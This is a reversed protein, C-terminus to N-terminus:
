QFGTSKAKMKTFGQHVGQPGEEPSIAVTNINGMVVSPRCHVDRPTCHNLALYGLSESLWSIAPTITNDNELHLLTTHTTVTLIGGPIASTFSSTKRGCAAIGTHM